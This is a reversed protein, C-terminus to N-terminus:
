AEVMTIGCLAFEPVTTSKPIVALALCADTKIEPIGPLGVAFDRFGYLGPEACNLFALPRAITVGFNGATATTALVTVSQVSQVGKDGSQLPLQIMRQVERLNTGGFATATTTRGPTGASNTYSATITTATAGVLTYIEVFIRNGVGDTYRTLAPSAPSGQVTQATTTTGSLGGIHYLRDYLMVFGNGALAGGWFQTLWKQRGGSPNTFPLAGATALTPIEGSTPAVGAGPTGDYQWLSTLRGGIVTTTAGGVRPGKNWWITEPSGGNGGTYRNILDSLDTIAAM